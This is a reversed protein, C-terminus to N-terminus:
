NYNLLFWDEASLMKKILWDEAFLCKKKKIFWDEAFLCIAYFVLVAGVLWRQSVSQCNLYDCFPSLHIGISYTREEEKRHFVTLKGDLYLAFFQQKKKWGISCKM